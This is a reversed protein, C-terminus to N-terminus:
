YPRFIPAYAQLMNTMWNWNSCEVKALKTGKAGLNICLHM